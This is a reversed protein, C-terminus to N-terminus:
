DNNAEEPSYTKLLNKTEHEYVTVTIGIFITIEKHMGNPLLLIIVQNENKTDEYLDVNLDQEEDGWDYEIFVDVNKYAPDTLDINEYDSFVFSTTLLGFILSLLILGIMKFINNKM